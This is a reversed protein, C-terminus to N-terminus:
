THYTTRGGEIRMRLLPTYDRSQENVYPIRAYINVVYVYADRLTSLSILVVLSYRSQLRM